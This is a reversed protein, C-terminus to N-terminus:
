IGPNAVSASLLAAAVIHAHSLSAIALPRGSFRQATPSFGLQEM